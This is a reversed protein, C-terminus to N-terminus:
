KMDDIEMGKSMLVMNLASWCLLVVLEPQSTNVFNYLMLNILNALSILAIENSQMLHYM